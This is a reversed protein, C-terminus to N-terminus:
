THKKKSPYVEHNANYWLVHFDDGNVLGIIRLTNNFAFSFLSDAMDELALNKLRMKAQKSLKEPNSLYHHKSKGADHTQRMIEFWTMNSYAIMKDLIILFIKILFTKKVQIM